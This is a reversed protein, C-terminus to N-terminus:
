AAVEGSTVRRMRGDVELLLAGDEDLGRYLGTTVGAGGRLTLKEVPPVVSWIAIV